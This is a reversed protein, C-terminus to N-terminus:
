RGDERGHGDLLKGGGYEGCTFLLIHFVHEGTCEGMSEIADWSGGLIHIDYETECGAVGYRTDDATQFADHDKFGLDLEISECPSFTQNAFGGSCRREFDFKELQEVISEDLGLEVAPPAHEGCLDLSFGPKGGGLVDNDLFEAPATGFVEIVRAIHEGDLAGFGEVHGVDLVPADGM